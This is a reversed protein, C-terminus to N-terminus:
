CCRERRYNGISKLESCNAFIVEVSVMAYKPKLKQGPACFLLRREGYEFLKCIKAACFYLLYGYQNYRRKFELWSREEARFLRGAVFSISICRM